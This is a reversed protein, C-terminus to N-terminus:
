KEKIENKFIINNWIYDNGKLQNVKVNSLNTKIQNHKNIYFRVSIAHQGENVFIEMTSRDILIRLSKVKLTGNNIISPLNEEDNFTMNTRDIIFENNKNLIKINKNLENSVIIEFDSEINNIIIESLGNEYNFTKNVEKIEFTRLNDLEKIPLQYLCDNKVFLERPVTLQNSWTTLEPPFPNSKSNGLWGLMIVRNGTNSFVQPAYFDFGLDIKLLDTKYKFNMENDIEVERYKVFHSGEKLPAEQELCAFVYERGDLKFYNPCELMYANQEDNEDFKIDKYNEWSTGNFKYINLVAKIDKTQAGNLMFLENNKEFVIPDRYHGSYKTLDTEYLFEKTVIKNKLDIFAKLTYATRDVDNFKVNGTYYIEIENNKNIRASGSFVGNKDYKNSPTLTLGEYTYNIFDTTTYLAWSKNFHQISFPCSQMFIYYKGDLFTLGNPDNTSGSYGALHYQNNYWDSQKKDHWKQIDNLDQETILSYKEKQM